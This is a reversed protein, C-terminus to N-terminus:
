QHSTDSRKGLTDETKRSHTQKDICGESKKQEDKKDHEEIPQSALQIIKKFKFLDIKNEKTSVM